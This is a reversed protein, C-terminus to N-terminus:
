FRNFFDRITNQIKEYFTKPPAPIPEVLIFHIGYRIAGGDTIFNDGIMIINEKPTQLKKCAQEFGRPDPKPPINTLIEVEKPLASYRDTWKMNSYCVIRVGNKLLKKIHEINEPLIERHNEAIVGDVDLIIGKIKIDKEKAIKDLDLDTFKKLRVLTKRNELKFLRLIQILKGITFGERSFDKM